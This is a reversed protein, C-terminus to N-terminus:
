ALVDGLSALKNVKPSESSIPLDGLDDYRTITAASTTNKKSRHFSIIAIHMAIISIIIIITIIM